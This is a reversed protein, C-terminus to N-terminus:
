RRKTRAVAATAPVSRQSRAAKANRQGDLKEIPVIRQAPVTNRAEAVAVSAPTAASADGSLASVGLAVVCVAVCAGLGIKVMRTFRARREAVHPLQKEDLIPDAPLVISEWTTRAPGLAAARALLEHTSIASPYPARAPPPPLSLDVDVVGGMNSLPERLTSEGITNPAPAPAAFAQFPVPGTGVSLQSKVLNTRPLGVPM